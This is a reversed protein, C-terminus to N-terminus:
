SNHPPHIEMFNGASQLGCVAKKLIMVSSADEGFEPGALTWLKEACPANLYANLIDCSLVSLDNLAAYLFAICVMTERSVVSTYVDWKPLDNTENGNVMFRAKCTFEGDMKIDFVMHCGIEAHGPLQTADQWLQKPTCGEHKEFAGLEQIKKM